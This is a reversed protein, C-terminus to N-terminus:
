SPRPEEPKLTPILEPIPKPLVNPAKNIDQHNLICILSDVVSYQQPPTLKKQYCNSSVTRVKILLIYGKLMIPSLRDIRTKIQLVRLLETTLKHNKNVKVKGQKRKSSSADSVNCWLPILTEFYQGLSVIRFTIKLKTGFSGRTTEHTVYVAQYEGEPILPNEGWDIELFDDVSEKVPKTKNELCNM